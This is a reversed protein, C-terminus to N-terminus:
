NPYASCVENRKDGVKRQSVISCVGTPVRERQNTTREENRRKTHEKAYVRPLKRFQERTRRTPLQWMREQANQTKTKKATTRQSATMLPQDNESVADLQERASNSRPREVGRTRIPVSRFNRLSGSRSRSQARHRWFFLGATRQKYAAGRKKNSNKQKNREDYSGSFLRPFRVDKEKKKKSIRM